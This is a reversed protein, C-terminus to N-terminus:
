RWCIILDICYVNWYDEQWERHGSFLFVEGERCELSGLTFFQFCIKGLGLEYNARPTSPSSAQHFLFLFPLPDSLLHLWRTYKGEKKREGEVSSKEEKKRGEEEKSELVKM